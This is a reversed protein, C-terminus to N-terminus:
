FLNPIGVRSSPNPNHYRMRRNRCPLCRKSRKRKLNINCEPCLDTKAEPHAKEWELKRKKVEPRSNYEKEKAKEQEPNLLRRVTKTDIELKKAISKYGMGEQRLISANMALGKRLLSKSSM